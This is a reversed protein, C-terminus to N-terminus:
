RSPPPLFPKLDIIINPNALTVFPYNVFQKMTAFAISLSVGLSGLKVSELKVILRKTAKDYTSKGKFVPSAVSATLEGSLGGFAHVLKIDKLTVGALGGERANKFSAIKITSGNLIQGVAATIADAFFAEDIPMRGHAAVGTMVFAPHSVQQVKAIFNGDELSITEGTISLGGSLARESVVSEASGFLASFRASRALDSATATSAILLAAAFVAARSM